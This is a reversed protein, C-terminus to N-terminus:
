FRPANGADALSNISFQNSRIKPTAPPLEASDKKYFKDIEGQIDEDMNLGNQTGAYDVVAHKREIKQLVM